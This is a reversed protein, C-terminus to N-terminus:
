VPTPHAWLRFTQHGIFQLFTPCLFLSLCPSHWAIISASVPIVHGRPIDLIALLVLRWPFPM